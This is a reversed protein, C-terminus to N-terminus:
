RCGKGVEYEKRMRSFCNPFCLNDAERKEVTRRGESEETKREVICYWVDSFRQSRERTHYKEEWELSDALWLPVFPEGGAFLM